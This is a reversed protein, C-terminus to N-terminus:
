RARPRYGRRLSSLFLAGAVIIAAPVALLAAGLLVFFAVAAVVGALLAMVLLTLAGPKGIHVRPGHRPDVSVWMWSTQGWASARDRGPPIIEPEARPQGDEPTWPSGM